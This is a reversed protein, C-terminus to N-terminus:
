QSDETHREREDWCQELVEDEALRHAYEDAVHLTRDVVYNSSLSQVHIVTIGHYNYWM